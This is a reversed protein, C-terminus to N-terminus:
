DLCLLHLKMDYVTILWSEIDGSATIEHRECADQAEKLNCKASYTFHERRDAPERTLHEDTCYAFSSSLVHDDTKIKEIVEADSLPEDAM